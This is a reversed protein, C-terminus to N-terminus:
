YKGTLINKTIKTNGVISFFTRSQPEVMTLRGSGSNMFNGFLNYSGTDINIHKLKCTIENVSTHGCYTPSLTSICDENISFNSHAVSRSWLLREYMQVPIGDREWVDIEADGFAYQVGSRLSMPNFLNAHVINFRDAGEGVCIIFPLRRDLEECLAVFWEHAVNPDIDYFWDGGNSLWISRMSTDNLLFTDIMMQEHNGRVAHFYDFNLLELAEPSFPGRDILDGVSFLRDKSKDFNVEKLLRSLEMMCGHLDGIVFDRGVTNAPLKLIEPM